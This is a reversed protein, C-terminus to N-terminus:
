ESVCESVDPEAGVYPKLFLDGIARSMALVGMARRPLPRPPHPITNPTVGQGAQNLPHVPTLAVTLATPYPNPDPNPNTNPCSNPTEPVAAMPSPYAM